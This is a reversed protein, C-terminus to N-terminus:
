HNASGENTNALEREIPNTNKNGILVDINGFDSMMDMERSIRAKAKQRITPPM